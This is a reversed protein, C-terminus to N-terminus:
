KLDKPDFRHHILLQVTTPSYSRGAREISILETRARATHLLQARALLEGSAGSSSFSVQVRDRDTGPGGATQGTRDELGRDSDESGGTRTRRSDTRWDESGGPGARTGPGAGTQGQNPGQETGTRGTGSPPPRYWATHDHTTSCRDRNQQRQESSERRSQVARVTWTLGRAPPGTWTGTWSYNQVLLIRSLVCM